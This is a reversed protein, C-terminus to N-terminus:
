ILNRMKNFFSNYEEINSQYDSYLVQEIYKFVPIRESLIEKYIEENDQNENLALNKELVKNALYMSSIECVEMPLPNAATVIKKRKLKKVLENYRAFVVPAFNGQRIYKSYRIELVAKRILLFLMWFIVVAGVVLLLPYVFIALDKNTEDEDIAIPTDEDAISVSSDSDGAGFGLDVNLLQSFFRGIGSM